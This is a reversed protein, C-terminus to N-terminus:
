GGACPPPGRGRNASMEPMAGAREGVVEALQRRVELVVAEAVQVAGGRDGVVDLGVPLRDDLVVGLAQVARAYVGLEVAERVVHAAILVLARAGPAAARHREVVAGLRHRLVAAM